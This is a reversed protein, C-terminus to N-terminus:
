NKSVQALLTDRAKTISQFRLEDGGKDPHSKQAHRRFASKIEKYGAGKELGLTEFAEASDQPNQLRQWFGNLLLEVEAETMNFYNSLDNYYHELLDTERISSGTETDRTRNKPYPMSAIEIAGITLESLEKARWKARLQYVAHRVLFHAKFLELMNYLSLSAIPEIRDQQLKKILAHERWVPQDTFAQELYDTIHKFNEMGELM